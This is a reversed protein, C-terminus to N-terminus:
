CGSFILKERQLKKRSETELLDVTIKTHTPLQRVQKLEYKLNSLGDQLYRGHTEKMLTYRCENVPNTRKEHVHKIMTYRAIKQSYRSIKYGALSVRTSIDDDEGGWGWYDNSFGNLKEFQQRTLATAGGFLSVYSLKYDLTDVAVSLHRPQEPCSYINKDNEPLLDVDHFVYCDWKYLKNAEAFGINMLKARNFTQNAIQEVIFIAYDLQQKLLLSHINNLFIRLHTDRDRYPVIIAVKHRAKCDIPRGHGGVSLQPYMQEIQEYTHENQDVKIPGILGPPENPCTIYPVSKKIWGNLLDLPDYNLSKPTFLQAFDISIWVLIFCVVFM